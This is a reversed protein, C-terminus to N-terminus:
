QMLISKAKKTKAKAGFQILPLNNLCSKSGLFLNKTKRINRNNKRREYNTGIGTKHLMVM